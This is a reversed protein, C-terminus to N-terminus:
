AATKRRRVAALGGLGALLLVGAAPLPVAAVSVADVDFGDFSSTNTGYQDFTADVLKISDFAFAGTVSGSGGQTLIRGIKTAVGSLVAYVDVAELHYNDPDGASYTVEWTKVEKVIGSVGFGLTLEGGYGLSVFKGDPANLANKAQHRQITPDCAEFNSGNRCTGLTFDLVNTAYVAANGATATVALAAGALLTKLANM